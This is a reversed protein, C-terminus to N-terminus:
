GYGLAKLLNSSPSLTYRWNPESRRYRTLDERGAEWSRQCSTKRCSFHFVVDYFDDPQLLKERPMKGTKQSGKVERELNAGATHTIPTRTIEDETM